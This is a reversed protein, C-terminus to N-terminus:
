NNNWESIWKDVVDGTYKFDQKKNYEDANNCYRRDNKPLINISPEGFQDSTLDIIYDNKQIWYHFNWKGNKDKFGGRENPLPNTRTWGGCIKGGIVKNLFYTARICQKASNKDTFKTELFIKISKLETYLQEYNFREYLEIM